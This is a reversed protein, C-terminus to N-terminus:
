FNPWSLFVWLGDGTVVEEVLAGSRFTGCHGGGGALFLAGLHLNLPWACSSIPVDRGQWFPSRPAGGKDYTGTKVTWGAFGCLGSSPIPTTPSCIIVLSPPSCLPLFLSPYPAWLTGPAGIETRGRNSTSGRWTLFPSLLPLPPYLMASCKDLM